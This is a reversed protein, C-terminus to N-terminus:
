KPLIKYSAKWQWQDFYLNGGSWELEGRQSDITESRFHEKAPYFAQSYADNFILRYSDMGGLYFFRIKENDSERMGYDVDM